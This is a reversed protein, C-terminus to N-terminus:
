REVTIERAARGCDENGLTEFERKPPIPPFRYCRTPPCKSQATLQQRQAYPLVMPVVPSQAASGGCQQGIRGQVPASTSRDNGNGGNGSDPSPPTMAVSREAKAKSTSAAIAASISRQQHHHKRVSLPPAPRLPTSNLKPGPTRGSGSSSCGNNGGMPLTPSDRSYDQVESVLGELGEVAAECAFEGFESLCENFNTASIDVISNSVTSCNNGVPSVNTPNIPELISNQPLLLSPPVLPRLPSWDDICHVVVNPVSLL